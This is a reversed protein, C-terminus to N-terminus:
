KKSAYRLNYVGYKRLVDQMFTKLSFFEKYTGRYRHGDVYSCSNFVLHIHLHPKNEHVAYVAQYERGIYRAVDQAIMNVIAPDNAEDPAFSLILHRLQVGASKGFQESIIEMSEAPYNPDVCCGGFYGHITKMPNLIYTIVDIKANPDFYKGACNGSILEAM